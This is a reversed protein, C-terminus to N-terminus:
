FYFEKTKVFQRSHWLFIYQVQHGHVQLFTTSSEPCILGSLRAGGGKESDIMADIKAMDSKKLNDYMLYFNVNQNHQLISKITVAAYPAFNSDFGLAINIM